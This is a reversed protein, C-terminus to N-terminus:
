RAPEVVVRRTPDEGESRTTLDTATEGVRDHVVKRESSQVVDLTVPGGTTRVTEIAEDVLAELTARRIERYGGVDVRVRPTSGGAALHQLRTRCLEEVVRIMAGRPGILRGLGSGSVSVEVDGDDTVSTAVDGAIGLEDLLQRVFDASASAADATPMAPRDTESAAPKPARAPASPATEKPRAAPAPAPADTAEDTSAADSRGGDRGKSRAPRRRRDDKPRPSKPRVRARVRALGRTRGFLGPKPEELIEFEAEDDHVGLRDLLLDKAEDVTKATTEVWEM